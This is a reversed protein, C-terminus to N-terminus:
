PSYPNELNFIVEDSPHAPCVFSRYEVKAHFRYLGEDINNNYPIITDSWHTRSVYPDPGFITYANIIWQNSEADWKDLYAGEMFTGTVCSAKQAVIVDFDVGEYISYSSNAVPSTIEISCGATLFVASCIVLFSIKRM